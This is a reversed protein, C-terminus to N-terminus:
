SRYIRILISEDTNHFGTMHPPDEFIAVNLILRTYPQSDQEHDASCLRNSNGQGREHRIIQDRLVPEATGERTLRSM